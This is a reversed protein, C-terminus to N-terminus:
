KKFRDWYWLGAIVCCIVIIAIVPWGGVKDIASVSKDMSEGITELTM